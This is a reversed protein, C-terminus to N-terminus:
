SSSLSVLACLVTLLLISVKKKGAGRSEACWTRVAFALLRNWSQPHLLFGTVLNLAVWMLLQQM